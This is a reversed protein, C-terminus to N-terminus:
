CIVRKDYNNKNEVFLANIMIIRIEAFFVNEMITRIKLLYRMKQECPGSASMSGSARAASRFVLASASRKHLSASSRM